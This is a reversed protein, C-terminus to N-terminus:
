IYSSYAVLDYQIACPVINLIRHYNMVIPKGPLEAPLSNVQLTPSRSKIGPNPLDGPPPCPLGSWYEQRSFGWPCLLRTPQLGCPRLSDSMVAHSPVACNHKPQNTQCSYSTSFFLPMDSISGFAFLLRWNWHKSSICLACIYSIICWFNCKLVM